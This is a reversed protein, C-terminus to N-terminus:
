ATDMYTLFVIQLSVLISVVIKLCAPKRCMVFRRYYRGGSSSRASFSPAGSREAFGLSGQGFFFNGM